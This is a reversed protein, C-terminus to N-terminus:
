FETRNKEAYRRYLDRMPGDPYSSFERDIKSMLAQSDEDTNDFFWDGNEPLLKVAQKILEASKIAGIDNLSKVVKESYEPYWEQLFTLIHDSQSANELHMCLFLNLQIQNLSNPNEDHRNILIQHLAISFDSNEKLSFLADIDQEEVIKDRQLLHSKMEETMWSLGSYKDNKSM